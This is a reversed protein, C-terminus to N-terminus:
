VLNNQAPLTQACQIERTHACLNSHHVCLTGPRRLPLASCVRPPTRRTRRHQQARLGASGGAPAARNKKSSPWPAVPCSSFIIGLQSSLHFWTGHRVCTQITHQEMTYSNRTRAPPSKGLYPSTKGSFTRHLSFLMRRLLLDVRRM